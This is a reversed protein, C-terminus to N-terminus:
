QSWHNNSLNVDPTERNKDIQISKVPKEFGYFKKVPSGHRWIMVPYRFEEDSGDEFTFTVLLPMLMGGVMEYEVEYFYRPNKTAKADKNENFYSSLTKSNAPNFNGPETKFDISGEPTEYPYYQTVEKIGLDVVETTYFWGRIFWDIDTGSADDLTRFFDAPTSHKFKWRNAYTSFAYDFNEPGVILNRLIGLGIAPKSYGEDGFNKLLDGQTMIPMMQDQPLQMYEVIQEPRLRRSPFESSWKQETMNQLYTNLSEDLWTWQREDSNVIMPFFNHGTEHIVLGVLRYMQQDNYSGDPNARGGNFAIMPYEMGQWQLNASVAKPYPYDFTFHSYWKLTHAVAKTSNEKWLRGGEKPYVSEAMPTKNGIQVAMADWMYTRSSAWAFDRVNEAKYKWTKTKGKAGTKMRKETEEETVIMVPEDFTKQAKQYRKYQEKSLIEQMNQLVGTANMIHDAPVTINVDFNGFELTYESRQWYQMNQWGEVDNYVAMRPYFQAMGYINGNEHPEYGNRDNELFYNPIHYSWDISFKFTEGPKLPAPPIVRMMTGNEYSTLEKGSADKVYHIIFGGDFNDELFRRSFDHAPMPQGPKAGQTLLRFPGEQKRINQDLQVWLYDLVDPSNNHYTIDESGTLINNEADLTLDMKYDVQQQYYKPGPAGAATRFENPTPLLDYLQDFPSEGKHGKTTVYPDHIQGFAWGSILFALLYFSIRYM